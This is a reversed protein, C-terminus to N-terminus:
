CSYHFEEYRTAAAGSDTFSQNCVSIQTVCAAFTIQHRTGRRHGVIKRYGAPDTGPQGAQDPEDLAGGYHAAIVEIPRREHQEV